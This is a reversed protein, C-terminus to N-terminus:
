LVWLQSLIIGWVPNRQYNGVRKSVLDVGQPVLLGIAPAQDVIQRDVAAWAAGAKAPDTAQLSLAREIRREVERSCFESVNENNDNNPVFAECRLGSIAEAPSAFGEFWYAGMQAKNRSDALHGFFKSFGALSADGRTRLRAHYGLKELLKVFYRSLDAFGVYSWVTVKMGSTGSEKILRTATALDPATWAGAPSPDLTFPCYPQYGPFNPPLFQCSIEAPGPYLEQVARRDVAYSIARRVRADDFPPVRTNLYMAFSGRYPYLHTQGTYRTTLEDIRDSPPQDDYYDAQGRQVADVAADADIPSGDEGALIWEITDPYGDPQAARSWERFRPNRVAVIRRKPVFTKIMYPGTAPLARTGVDKAPTGAPVVFATPQALNFLFNPDPRTLHFTVTNASPDTVIGKSLRCTAPSRSCADAGVLGRFSRRHLRSGLKFGREISWRVDQPTVVQGTSYRIGPRLRFTYTTGGDTPRPLTTALDAVLTSGEVGGVQKHGVLGDNTMVRVQAPVFSFGENWLAPDLSTIGGSDARTLKLVGGRHSSPVGRTTVWLADGAAAAGAPASGVDITRVVANTDPDLRTVTGRVESAAWVADPSVAVASPGNGMGVTAVVADSAPDIRSVTGDLTNAVWVASAGVAIARPGTGVPIPHVVANSSPSIRSVTGDTTNSVWVAGLGAAVGSPTGGVGITAVVKGTDADIRSVSNDLSNAVWVAGDGLAIGTPGNGVLVTKVVTNTSPNIWSVSRDGSNAVWVAGDGVAVGVPDRGVTIRQVVRRAAADVRSVTGEENAVWVAGEGAAVQGSRVELPVQGVLADSKVDILGLSNSAIATVGSGPNAIRDAVLATSTLLAVAFRAVALRWGPRRPRALVGQQGGGPERLDVVDAALKAPVLRLHSRSSATQRVIHEVERAAQPQAGAQHVRLPVGGTDELVAGAAARSAPESAYLSLAQAVEERGFPGLRRRAAGSPDLREVLAALGPTIAEERYAGLVLLRRGVAAAALGALAELVPAQALHLDDLVLLVARVSRGALWDALGQGLAAPSRDPGPVALDQLSAGVSALADAFPQLPDLSTPMCRGYLVRGGQDHVEQALAAALRTKGMGEAGAVLVVGGQDHTARTWSARLWALEAARGAFVPGAPALGEPLEQPPGAEAPAPLDLGPDQALIAAHLRRLETGPDIGLEEVLISRARRYALLADAQRGSRYLALMLQARPRERLPQERVLGELEGVLEAHRGMALEAEVRGEVAVLRLQELRDIETTAFPQDAFDALAPGRWLELGLQFRAAALPAQGAELAQQGQRVLRELRVADLDDPGVRLLYGPNQTLLVQAAAGRGRRPELLDRLHSVYTQLTSIASGPPRGDWLEDVLRDVSIVRNANLLLIALVARQKVGGLRLRQGGNIVELPGLIRFEM